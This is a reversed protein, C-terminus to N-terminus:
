SVKGKGVGGGPVPIPFTVPKTGVAIVAITIDLINDLFM